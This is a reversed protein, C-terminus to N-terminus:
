STVVRFRGYSGNRAKKSSPRWEGIGSLMGGADILNVVSEPALFATNYVVTLTASWPWFEGRYRIDAVGTENRTFDERMVPEGVIQVLQESGEGEVFISRKMAEMTLGDFQRAGDVIASKFATAPMGYGGGELHYLSGHFDTEPDKPAKKTVAKGMQKDRMMTRAKESWRHCILPSIGEVDVEVTVFEVRRLVLPGTQKKTAVPPM